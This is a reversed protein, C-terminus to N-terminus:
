WNIIMLNNIIYFRILTKPNSGLLVFLDLSSLIGNLIEEFSVKWNSSWLCSNKYVKYRWVSKSCWKLFHQAHVKLNLVYGVCCLRLKIKQNFLDNILVSHFFNAKNTQSRLNIPSRTVLFYIHVTNHMFTSPVVPFSFFMIAAFISTHPSLLIYTASLLERLMWKWWILQNRNSLYAM